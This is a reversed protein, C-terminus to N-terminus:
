GKKASVIKITSISVLVVPNIVTVSVFVLIGFLDKIVYTKDILKKFECRCKDHNWRQKNNCVSSNFRCKCKCTKNWEIRRTENTRSVLNFLKVNLNKVFDPVCNQSHIISITAVAVAYVQKLAILFFCLTMGMLM